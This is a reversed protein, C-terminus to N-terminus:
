FPCIEPNTIPAETETDISRPDICEPDSEDFGPDGVIRSIFGSDFGLLECLAETATEGAERADQGAHLAGVLMMGAHVAALTLRKHDVDNLKQALESDEPNWALLIADTAAQVMGLRDSMNQLNAGIVRRTFSLAYEAVLVDALRGPKADNTEHVPTSPNSPNRGVSRTHVHEEEQDCNDAQNVRPAYTSSVRGIRGVDDMSDALEQLKGGLSTSHDASHSACGLGLRAVDVVEANPPKTQNISPRRVRVNFAGRKRTNPDGAIASIRKRHDKGAAGPYVVCGFRGNPMIVLHEGKEDRGDKACAPCRAITRSGRQHVNELRSIDLSM